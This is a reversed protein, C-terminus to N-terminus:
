NALLKSYHEIERKAKDNLNIINPSVVFGQNVLGQVLERDTQWFRLVEILKSNTLLSSQNVIGTAYWNEFRFRPFQSNMAPVGERVPEASSTALWKVKDNLQTYPATQDFACTLQGGIVNPQMQGTGKYVVPTFQTKYEKNITKLIVEGHANSVGCPLEEKKARDVLQKFNAFQSNNAVVFGMTNVVSPGFLQLNHAIKLKNNNIVDLFVFTSAGGVLIASNPKKSVYDHAIEGAAGPQYVVVNNIGRTTLGKSIARATTDIAGGPPTPVVLEIIESAWTVSFTSLSLIFATLLASISKKM